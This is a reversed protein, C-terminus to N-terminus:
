RDENDPDVIESDVPESGEGRMVVNEGDHGVDQNDFGHAGAM